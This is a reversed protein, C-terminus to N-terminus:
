ELSLVPNLTTELYQLVHLPSIITIFRSTVFLLFSSYSSASAGILLIDMELDDHKWIFESMCNWFMPFYCSVLGLLFLFYITASSYARLMNSTIWEMASFPSLPPTSTFLIIKFVLRSSSITKGLSPTVFRFQSLWFFTRQNRFCLTWGSLKFQDILVRM